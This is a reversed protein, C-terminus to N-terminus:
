LKRCRCKFKGNLKQYKELEQPSEEESSVAYPAPERGKSCRVLAVQVAEMPESSMDWVKAQYWSECEVNEYDAQGIVVDSAQNYDTRQAQWEFKQTLFHREKKIDM